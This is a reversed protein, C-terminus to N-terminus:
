DKIELVPHKAFESDPEYSVMTWLRKTNILLLLIHLCLPGHIFSDRLLLIMWLFIARIFVKFIGLKSVVLYVTLFCTLDYVEVNKPIFANIVNHETHVGDDGPCFSKRQQDPQATM